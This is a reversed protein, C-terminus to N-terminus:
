QMCSADHSQNSLSVAATAEYYVKVIAIIILGAATVQRRSREAKAEPLAALM